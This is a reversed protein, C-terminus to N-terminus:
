GFKVQRGLPKLDVSFVPKVVTPIRVVHIVTLKAGMSKAVGCAYSIKREM